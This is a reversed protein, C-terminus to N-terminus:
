NSKTEAVLYVTDKPKGFANLHTLVIAWDPNYKGVPTDGEFWSPLKIYLKVDDRRQLGEVFAREVSSEVCVYDHLSTGDSGDLKLSPTIYEELLPIDAKLLSM